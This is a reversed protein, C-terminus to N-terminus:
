QTTEQASPTRAADATADDKRARARHEAQAQAWADQDAAECLALLEFGYNQRGAKFYTVSGSHDFIGERVGARNVIELLVARGEVTAMVARLCTQLYQGRRQEIRGATKVQSPDAANKVTARQPDM